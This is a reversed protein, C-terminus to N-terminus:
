LEKIGAAELAAQMKGEDLTWKGHAAIHAQADEDLYKRLKGFPTDEDEDPEIEDIDTTKIADPNFYVAVYENAEEFDSEVELGEVHALLKLKLKEVAEEPTEAVIVACYGIPGGQPGDSSNGLSFHYTKM